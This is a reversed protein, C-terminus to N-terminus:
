QAGELTVRQTVLSDDLPQHTSLMVMGGAVAHDRIWGTVMAVGDADLSTFPEDLLWVPARYVLLQALMARRRQGASLFRCPTQQHHQLGVQQLAAASDMVPEGPRLAGLATINEMATLGGKLAERHGLYHLKGRTEPDPRTTFRSGYWSVAGADPMTLGALCRLVTTKGSGNPGVLHIVDGANGTMDLHRILPRDGRWIELKDIALLPM